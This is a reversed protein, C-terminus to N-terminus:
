AGSDQGHLIIADLGCSKPSVKAGDTDIGGDAVRDDSM